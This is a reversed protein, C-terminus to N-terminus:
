PLSFYFTAGHGIKGEAWSRGGHRNIIRCVNALGIGTGEFEDARHLRQFVGFLKDAYDMNFGVGNDRIFVITETGRGPACGIEIEAQERPRTFKLANSILNVLVIRLMSRDGTVVPLDAVHWRIARGGAEPEIERIVEGALSGLDVKMKSMEYRGMRSFSLLDDILTGMRRTSDSITTMYHRSLEDLTTAARKQLLELFGDIHRLPARLDHSVSYAFAELEKNVAELQATRDFVRQELEQNLILIEEEARKRETINTVMGFSGQFRHEDDFVATSSILAWVTEGGKRRFRREYHESLGQRRNKMKRLHDHVDEEFMFDTMPRGIMDEASYGLIEATTANVLSIMADPGLVCIGETATDVIRRYKAESERLAEEARKRETLDHGVALVSVVKGYRDYEPVIAYELVLRVGHANVWEFEITQPIGTNLVELLKAGYEPHVPNPVRPIDAAPVNVVDWASLGSAKEWAPNVYIRRLDTDYRVLLAPINELLTRYEQERVTMAQAAMKSEVIDWSLDGIQSVIEIDSDNYHTPKNGVGIIAKILGGRFIPVVLERVVPAHGEPMGKRHPLSPYDNHIVPHREHVCDVWVGAQAIDYHSDKGAATCLTKLTNTSWNQLSLTKQDSELFHYFGITSGTLAEIEDLTATLLEDTSHSNAFELLRLRAQMINEARKREIRGRMATIGFALDASLDELLRREDTTFANPETSYISLVGFRNATEDKLPLAIITRYGRQLASNRWPAAQPDTAPDVSSIEGCRLARGGPGRGRETDAWTLMVQKLYGDEAGAWAVPRVTKADDNQAYGVWAMRYGAEECIIRCIDNLLTQEDEARILTQNCSSIARLERNLRCLAEEALKRETMDQALVAVGIVEGTETKIPSHAVQFYQRSRLEEGSYAEEVLQEGALARDLNGRAAERDEPVSMYDLLSQGTEIEVGYLAQMVAAHRKNYSTYCYQRDISFILANASNIISRLTFYQKRLEEEATKRKTLEKKLTVMWILAILFLVFLISITVNYITQAIQEQTYFVVEKPKWKDVIHQYTGDAKIIQLANNIANLLKTNGKKVAFSSYSFAIPEGTVKINRINNEALIYSGIRYDVVIADITNENLLKFGELFSTIITLQIQPIEELLQQPLGGSEVGVRLGRLSSLGSIGMKNTRTFISFQSELLSDSFDYIENRDESQNIQILADAEGRAVLAQAELWDMAKIEIPQPIHKALAHVIDVAVGSPTTDDLYVVPAINKNGLFLLKADNSEEAFSNSLTLLNILIGFLISLPLKSQFLFKQIGINM